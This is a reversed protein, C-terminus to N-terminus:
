SAKRGELFAAHAADRESATVDELGTAAELAAIAPTSGDKNFHEANGEELEAIAAILASQRDIERDLEAQIDPDGVMRQFFERVTGSPAERLASLAADLAAEITPTTPFAEGRSPTDVVVLEPEARLVALQDDSFYGAAYVVPRASHALGCRRFGDRRATITVSPTAHDM